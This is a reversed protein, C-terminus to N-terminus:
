LKYEEDLMLEGPHYFSAISFEDCPRFTFFEHLSEM